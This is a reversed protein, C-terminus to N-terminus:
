LAEEHEPSEEVPALLTELAGSSQALEDLGLQEIVHEHPVEGAAVSTPGAPVVLGAVVGAGVALVVAAAMRWSHRHSGALVPEIRGIPRDVDVTFEGSPLDVGWQGLMEWAQQQAERRQRCRACTELHRLCEAREESSLEGAVFRILQADRLCM